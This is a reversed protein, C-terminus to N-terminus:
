SYPSKNQLKLIFYMGLNFSVLAPSHEGSRGGPEASLVSIKNIWDVGVGGEVTTKHGHPVQVEVEPSAPPEAKGLRLEVQHIIQHPRTMVLGHLEESACDVGPWILFEM